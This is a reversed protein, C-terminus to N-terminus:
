TLGSWVLLALAATESRLRSAGLRISRNGPLRRLTNKEEDPFGEPPGILLLLDGEPLGLPRLLAPSEGECDGWVVGAWGSGPGPGTLLSTLKEPPLLKLEWVGQCQGLASSALRRLRSERARYRTGTDLPIFGWAGLEVAKEVLWDIRNGEGTTSLWWRRVPVPIEERERVVLRASDKTIEEVRALARTGRGDTVPIEDGQRARLSKILHRFDSGDIRIM